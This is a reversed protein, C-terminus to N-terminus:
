FNWMQLIDFRLSWIVNWWFCFENNRYFTLFLSNVVSIGYRFMVNDQTKKIVNPHFLVDYVVCQEGAKDVDRRPKTTSYPVAWPIRGQSDAKMEKADEVNAEACVNVFVKGRLPVAEAEDEVAESASLVRTKIVYGPSPQLFTVNFGQQAEFKRVESKYQDQNDQVDHVYDVLMARFTPDQLAKDIAAVEQRTAKFGESRTNHEFPPLNSITAM